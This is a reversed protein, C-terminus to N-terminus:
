GSALTRAFGLLVTTTGEGAVSSVLGLAIRSQGPLRTEVLRRVASLEKLAEPPIVGWQGPALALGGPSPGAASPAPAPEAAAVAAESPALREREAKKLADYIRSM